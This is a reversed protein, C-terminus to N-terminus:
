EPITSISKNPTPYESHRLKVVYRGANDKIFEIRPVLKFEVARPGYYAGGADKYSISNYMTAHESNDTESDYHANFNFDILSVPDMDEKWAYDYEITNEPFNILNNKSWTFESSPISTPFVGVYKSWFLVTEGDEACLFYYVSCAYDLRRERIYTSLPTAEGRYVKSIYDVWAKHIKYVEIRNTDDYAISFNGASRTGITHRGVKIKWGTFTTGHEVTELKEDSIEFSLAMNSLFPNFDHNSTFDKTLSKLLDPDTNYLYRFTSDRMILSSTDKGGAFLNIDPRTFYVRPFAKSLKIDPPPALKFRSFQHLMNRKYQAISSADGLSYNSHVLNCYKGRDDDNIDEVASSIPTIEANANSATESSTNSSNNSTISRVAIRQMPTVAKRSSAAASSDVVTYSRIQTNNKVLVFGEEADLGYNKPEYLKYFGGSIETTRNLSDKADTYCYFVGGCSSSKLVGLVPAYTTMASYVLCMSSSTDKFNVKLLEM